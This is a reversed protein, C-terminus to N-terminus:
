DDFGDISFERRKQCRKLIFYLYIYSTTNYAKPTSGFPGVPKYFSQSSPPPFLNDIHM